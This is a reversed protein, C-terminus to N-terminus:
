DFLRNIRDLIPHLRSVVDSAATLREKLTRYSSLLNAYPALINEKFIDLHSRYETEASQLRPYNFDVVTLGQLRRLGDLAAYCAKKKSDAQSISSSACVDLPHEHSQVDRFTYFVRCRHVGAQTPDFEFRPPLSGIQALAHRLIAEFSVSFTPM